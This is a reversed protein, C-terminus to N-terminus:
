YFIFEPFNLERKFGGPLILNYERIVKDYSQAAELETSFEGILINKYDKMYRARWKQSDKRFTVGLYKSSANKRKSRIKILRGKKIMDKTNQKSTGEWLHDPNVCRPNDCSHCILKKSSIYDHYLYYSIRHARVIKGNLNFRGYGRPHLSAQWEWCDDLKKVNMWFRAIDKPTLKYMITM